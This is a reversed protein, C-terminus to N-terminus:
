SGSLMPILCALLLLAMITNLLGAHRRFLKQLASGALAWAATGMSGILTLVAMGGLLAAASHHWPFIFGSYATVGYIMIKVNVFQLIFGAMFGSGAGANGNDGSKATATKWALWVIYLCGVYKMIEMFVPSVSSLSFVLIGCLLMVCLFGTWIGALVSLSGRFGYRLGSSLSLITNPGPTFATIFTFTLFASLVSISM